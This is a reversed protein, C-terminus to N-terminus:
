INNTISNSFNELANETIKDFSVNFKSDLDNKFVFLINKM